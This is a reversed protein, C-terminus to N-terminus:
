VNQPYYHLLHSQHIVAHVQYQARGQAVKKSTAGRPQPLCLSAAAAAATTAAVLLLM